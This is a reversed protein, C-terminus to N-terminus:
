RAVERRTNFGRLAAEDLQKKERKFEAELFQQSQREKLKELVKVERDAELLVGRRREIEELVQAIQTEVVTTQSKVILEYRRTNLLDEIDISGEGGAKRMRERTAERDANLEASQVRLLREAEYAQALERRREDRTQERLKLLTALRFSTLSM